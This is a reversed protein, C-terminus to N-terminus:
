SAEPNAPDDGPAQPHGGTLADTNGAVADKEAKDIEAIREAAKLAQEAVGGVDFEGPLEATLLAHILIQVDAESVEMEGTFGREQHWERLIHFRLRALALGGELLNAAENMERSRDRLYIAQSMWFPIKTDKFVTQSQIEETKKAQGLQHPMWRCYPHGEVVGYHYDFISLWEFFM